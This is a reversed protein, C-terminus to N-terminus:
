FADAHLRKKRRTSDDLFTASYSGMTHLEKEKKKKKKPPVLSLPPGQSERKEKKKKKKKKKGERHLIPTQSRPGGGKEGKEPFFRAPFALPHAPEWARKEKEEKRPLCFLAWDGGGGKKGFLNQISQAIHWPTVDGSGKRKKKEELSPSFSPSARVGKKKEPLSSMITGKKKKRQRPLLTPAPGKKKKEELLSRDVFRFNKKKHSPRTSSPCSHNLRAPACV